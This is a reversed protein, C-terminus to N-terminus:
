YLWREMRHSPLWPVEPVFTFTPWFLAEPFAEPLVLPPVCLALVPAVVQWPMVIEDSIIQHDLDIWSAAWSLCVPVGVACLVVPRDLSIWM